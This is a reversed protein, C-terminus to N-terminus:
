GGGMAAPNIKKGDLTIEEKGAVVESLFWGKATKVWKDKSWSSNVMKATKTKEANAYVDAKVVTQCDVVVTEGNFKFNSAKVTISHLQKTMAKYGTMMEQVQKKNLTQGTKLKWKMNPTGMAFASKFDWKSMAAGLKKYKGQIETEDAGGAISVSVLASICLILVFSLRKM